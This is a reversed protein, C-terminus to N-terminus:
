KNKHEAHLKFIYNVFYHLQSCYMEESEETLEAEISRWVHKLFHDVEETVLGPTILEEKLLLYIINPNDNTAVYGELRNVDVSCPLNYRKIEKPLDNTIIVCLFSDPMIQLELKKYTRKNRM